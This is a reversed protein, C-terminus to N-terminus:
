DELSEFIARLEPFLSLLRLARIERQRIAELGRSLRNGVDALTHQEDDELGFRLEVVPRYQKPLKAVAGRITAVLSSDGVVRVPDPAASYVLEGLLVERSSGSIQFSVAQDLSLAPRRLRVVTVVEEAPWDLEEALEDPRALRGLAKGLREEARGLQNIQRIRSDPLRDVRATEAIAKTIAGRIL